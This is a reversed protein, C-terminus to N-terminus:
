CDHCRWEGLSCTRGCTMGIVTFTAGYAASDTATTLAGRSFATDWEAGNAREEWVHLAYDFAPLSKVTCYGIGKGINTGKLTWPHGKFQHWKSTSAGINLTGLDNHQLSRLYSDSRPAWRQILGNRTSDVETFFTPIESIMMDEARLLSRGIGDTVFSNQGSFFQSSPSMGRILNNETTKLISKIQNKPLYYGEKLLNARFNREFYQWPFQFTKIGEIMHTNYVHSPMSSFNRFGLAKADDAYFMLLQANQRSTLSPNEHVYCPNFYGDTFQTVRIHAGEHLEPYPCHPDKYLGAVSIYDGQPYHSGHPGQIGKNKFPEHPGCSGIDGNPLTESNFFLVIGNSDNLGKWSEQAYPSPNNVMSKRGDLVRELLSPDELYYNTGQVRYNFIYDRGGQKFILPAYLEEFQSGCPDITNYPRIAPLNQKGQPHLTDELILTTDMARTVDHGHMAEYAHLMTQAKHSLDHDHDNPFSTGLAEPCKESIYSELDAKPHASLASEALDFEGQEEPMTFEQVETKGQDIEEMSPKFDTANPLMVKLDENNVPEPSPEPLEITQAQERKESIQKLIQAAEKLESITANFAITKYQYGMDMDFGSSPQQQNEGSFSHHYSGGVNIGFDDKTYSANADLLISAPQSPTNELHSVSIKGNVAVTKYQYGMGMDFGSSGKQKEDSFSHHHSAGLNVGFDDTFKYSVNATSSVSAPQSPATENGGIPAGSWQVGGSIGIGHIERPQEKEEFPGIHGENNKVKVKAGQLTGGGIVGRNTGIKIGATEKANTRSYHIGGHVEAEPTVVGNWTVTAGASAGIHMSKNTDQGTKADVTGINGEFEEYKMKGDHLIQNKVDGTFSGAELHATTHIEGKSSSKDFHVKNTAGKASVTLSQCVRTEKTSHNLVHGSNDRTNAVTSDEGSVRIEMGKESVTNGGGHLSKVVLVGSPAYFQSKTKRTVYDCRVGTKKLQAILFARKETSSGLASFKQLTGYGSLASQVISPASALWEKLAGPDNPIQTNTLFDPLSFSWEYGKTETTRTLVDREMYINNGRRTFSSNPAHVIPSQMTLDGARSVHRIPGSAVTEQHYVNNDYKDKKDKKQFIRTLKQAGSYKRKVQSGKCGELKVLNLDKDSYNDIGDRAYFIAAQLTCVGNESGCIVKYANFQPRAFQTEWRIKYKTRTKGDDVTNKTIIKQVDGMVEVGNKGDILIDCPTSFNPATGLIKGNAILSIGLMRVSVQGTEPDTYLYSEGSNAIIKVVDWNISKAEGDALGSDWNTTNKKINFILDGEAKFKPIGAKIISGAGFSGDEKKAEVFFFESANIKVGEGVHFSDVRLALSKSPLTFSQDFTLDGTTNISLLDTVNINGYRLGSQLYLSPIDPLDPMDLVLRPANVTFGAELHSGDQGILYVTGGADVKTELRHSFNQKLSLDPM